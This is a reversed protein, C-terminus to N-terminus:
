AELAEQNTGPGSGPASDIFGIGYGNNLPGSLTPLTFIGTMLITGATANYLQSKSGAVAVGEFIRAGGQANNLLIGNSSDLQLFGGSEATSPITGSVGYFTPQAACGNPGCPPPQGDNSFNDTFNLTSSLISFSDINVQVAYSPTAQVTSSFSAAFIVIVLALTKGM